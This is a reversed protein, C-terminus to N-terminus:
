TVDTGDVVIKSGHATLYAQAFDMISQHGKGHHNDRIARLALILRLFGEGKKEMLKSVPADLYEGLRTWMGTRVGYEGVAHLLFELTEEDLAVAWRKYKGHALKEQFASSFVPTNKKM